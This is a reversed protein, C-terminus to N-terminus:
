RGAPTLAPVPAKASAQDDYVVPLEPVAADAPDEPAKAGAEDAAGFVTVRQELEQMAGFVIVRQESEQMAGFVTVRQEPEQMAGFVTVRQEPEQMAGATPAAIAAAALLSLSYSAFKAM